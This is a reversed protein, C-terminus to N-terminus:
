NVGCVFKNPKALAFFMRITVPSDLNRDTWFATQLQFLSPKGVSYLLVTKSENPKYSGKSFAHGKGRKQEHIRCFRALQM